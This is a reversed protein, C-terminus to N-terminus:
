RRCSEDVKLMRGSKSGAKRSSGTMFVGREEEEEEEEEEEDDDGEREETDRDPSPQAPCPFSALMSSESPYECVRELHAEDFCVKVARHRGRLKVLCSRQLTEYGGIVQIEQATPYRKRGEGGDRQPHAHRGPAHPGPTQCPGPCCANQPPHHHHHQGEQGSGGGSSRLAFVPPLPAASPAREPPPGARPSVTSARPPQPPQNAPPQRPTGGDQPQTSQGQLPAPKPSRQRAGRGTGQAEERARAGLPPARRDTPPPKTGCTRRRADQERLHLQKVQKQVACVGGAAGAGGVDRGPGGAERGPGRLEGQGAQPDGRGGPGAGPGAREGFVASLSSIRSMDGEAETVGGRAVAAEENTVLRACDGGGEREPSRRGPTNGHHGQADQWAQGAGNARDSFNLGDSKRNTTDKRKRTQMLCNSGETVFCPDYKGFPSYKSKKTTAM